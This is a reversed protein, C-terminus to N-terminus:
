LRSPPDPKTIKPMTGSQRLSNLVLLLKIPASAEFADLCIAPVNFGAISTEADPDPLREIDTAPVLDVILSVQARPEAEIQFLGLGRIEMLNKINEPSRAHLKGAEDFLETYDDAILKVSGDILGNPASAMCRLALDSKGLGSAGRIIAAHGDLAITTAHICIPFETPM